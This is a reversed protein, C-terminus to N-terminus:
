HMFGSLWKISYAGTYAFVLMKVCEGLLCWMLFPVFPMRLAGAAIGALDFFPNPVAALLFTTPGGYRRMWPVIRAYVEMREVVVQGGFGAAYSTLEGIAAGAGACLAVLLPQFVSGMAFVVAVGPAPLLITANAM